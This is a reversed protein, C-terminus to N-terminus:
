NVLQIGEIYCASWGVVTPDYYYDLVVQSGSAQAKLLMAMKNNRYNWNPQTQTIDYLYLGNGVCASNLGGSVYVYPSGYENAYIQTITVSPSYAQSYSAYATQHLLATCTSLIAVAITKM